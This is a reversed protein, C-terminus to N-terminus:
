LRIKLIQSYQLKDKPKNESLTLITKEKEKSPLTSVTPPKSQKSFQMKNFPNLQALFKM